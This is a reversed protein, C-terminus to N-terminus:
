LDLIERILKIIPERFIISTEFYILKYFIPYVVLITKMFYWCSTLAKTTKFPTSNELTHNIVYSNSKRTFTLTSAVTNRRYNKLFDVIIISIYIWIQTKSLM